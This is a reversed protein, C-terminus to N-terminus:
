VIFSSSFTNQQKHSRCVSIIEPKMKNMRIRCTVNDYEINAQESEQNCGYSSVSHFILSWETSGNFDFMRSTNVM